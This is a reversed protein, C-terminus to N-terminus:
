IRGWCVSEAQLLVCISINFAICVVKIEWLSIIEQCAGYNGSVTVEGLINRQWYHEGGGRAGGERILLNM